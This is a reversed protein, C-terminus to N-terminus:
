GDQRHGGIGSPSQRPNTLGPQTVECCPATYYVTGGPVEYWRLWQNNRRMDELAADVRDRPWGLARCIEAAPVAKEQRTSLEHIIMDQDRLPPRDAQRNAQSQGDHPPDM